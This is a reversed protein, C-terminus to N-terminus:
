NSGKLMSSTFVFSVSLKQSSNGAFFPEQHHAALTRLLFLAIFVYEFPTTELESPIEECKESSFQREMIIVPFDEVQSAM